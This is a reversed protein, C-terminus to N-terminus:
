VVIEIGLYIIQSVNSSKLFLYIIVAPDFVLSNYHEQDGHPSFLTFKEIVLICVSFLIFICFQLVTGKQPKRKNLFCRTLVSLLYGVM